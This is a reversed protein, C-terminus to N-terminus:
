DGRNIGAKKLIAADVGIQRWAQYSIRNRDAYKKAVEVFEAELRPLNVGAGATALEAQLDLRDQTLRLQRVPEADVIELDIEHLRKRISEPTRKRGRKPKHAQLAELYDRVAKGERRGMALAAKHEDTMPSKPGRKAVIVLMTRKNKANM